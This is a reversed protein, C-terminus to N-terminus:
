KPKNADVAKAAGDMAKDLKTGPTEEKKCATLSGALFASAVLGLLIKKSVNM